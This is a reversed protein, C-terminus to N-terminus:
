RRRVPKRIFMSWGIRVRRTSIMARAGEEEGMVDM